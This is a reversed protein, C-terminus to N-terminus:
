AALPVEGRGPVAADFGSEIGIPRAVHDHVDGAGHAPSSASRWASRPKSAIWRAEYRASASLAVASRLKEENSRGSPRPPLARFASSEIRAIVDTV